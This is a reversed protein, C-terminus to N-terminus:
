DSTIIQQVVSQLKKKIILSVQVQDERYLLHINPGADMTVLPGDGFERWYNRVISLVEFSESTMYGFSPNSTEFLAHMDWFEAWTIEFAEQWKKQTLAELLLSLRNEAREVRGTFLASDIVRIHAQSSSVEKKQGSVVLSHHILKKYPLDYSQVETGNWLVWPRYFSRCSSGSAQRSLKSFRSMSLEDSKSNYKKQSMLFERFCLSLAAFSSASSALGCDSLFNSASRVKFNQTVNFENKLRNLHTLFRKCGSDSLQIPELSKNEQSTLLESSSLPYWSSEADSVCEFEVYTLLHDLTYSFSPNTPLNIDAQTKGMYKILAINSPARGLYKRSM